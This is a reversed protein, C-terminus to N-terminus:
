GAHHQVLVPRLVFPQRIPRREVQDDRQVVRRTRDVRSKQDLLLTRARREPRELLHEPMMAQRQAEIGVAAAMIEVRRFRAALDVPGAQRLDSPRKGM